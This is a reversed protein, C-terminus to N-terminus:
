WPNGKNHDRLFRHISSPPTIVQFLLFTTLPGIAEFAKDLFSRSKSPERKRKSDDIMSMAIDSWLFPSRDKVSKKELLGPTNKIIAIAAENMALMTM